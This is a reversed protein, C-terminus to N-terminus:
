SKRKTYNVCRIRINFSQTKRLIDWKIITGRNNKAKVKWVYGVLKTNKRYKALKFYFKHNYFRKKFMGGTSGIYM